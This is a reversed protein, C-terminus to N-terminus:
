PKAERRARARGFVRVYIEDPEGNQAWPKTPIEVRDIVATSADAEAPVFATWPDIAADRLFVATVFGVGVWCKLGEDM